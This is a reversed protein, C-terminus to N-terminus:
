NNRGIRNATRKVPGSRPTTRTRPVAAAPRIDFELSGAATDNVFLDVRYKGPIWKGAPRGTFNVRDQADTTRYSASVVRTEPKTGTVRVAVFSMKVDAVGAERLVVICHIPIDTTVFEGVREGPNGRGDDRALYAESIAQSRVYQVLVLWSLLVCFVGTVIPKVTLDPVSFMQLCPDDSRNCRSDM